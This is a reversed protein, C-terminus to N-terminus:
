GKSPPKGAAALKKDLEAKRQKAAAPKAYYHDFCEALIDLCWEAEHPEVPIVQLTTQDTLPHASFNGFNRVADLSERLSTPIGKKPDPEKLLASIQDVLNHQLYGQARLIAQLCRRALAASSKPSAGLVSRAENYDAAIDKPVAAAPAVGFMTPPYTVHKTAVITGDEFEMETVDFQDADCKPCRRVNITYSTLTKHWWVQAPINNDHFIIGCRWCLVDGTAM